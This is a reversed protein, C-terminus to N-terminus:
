SSEARSPRPSSGYRQRSPPRAHQPDLHSGPGSPTRTGVTSILTLPRDTGRDHAAPTAHPSHPSTSSPHTPVAQSSPSSRSAPIASAAQDAPAGQAPTTAASLAAV